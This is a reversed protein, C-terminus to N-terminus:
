ITPVVWFGDSCIVDCVHSERGEKRVRRKEEWVTGKFVKFELRSSSVM